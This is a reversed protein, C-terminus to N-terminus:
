LKNDFGLQKKFDDSFEIYKFTEEYTLKSILQLEEKKRKKVETRLQKEIKIQSVIFHDVFGKM